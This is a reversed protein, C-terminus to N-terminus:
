HKKKYYNFLKYGVFAMISGFLIGVIVDLPYHKGVYIRSYAVGLGWLLVIATFCRSKATLAAFVALALATSSHASFFSYAADYKEIAHIIDSFADEHIPRPRAIIIKVINNILNTTAVTLSVFVAVSWKWEKCRYMTYILICLAIVALGFYSSLFSMIPDLWPTHKSNLYLFLEKDFTILENM